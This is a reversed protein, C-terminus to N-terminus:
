QIVEYIKHNRIHRYNAMQHHYDVTSNYNWTIDTHPLRKEEFAEWAQKCQQRAIPVLSVYILNPTSPKDTVSSLTEGTVRFLLAEYDSLKWGFLDGEFRTLLSLQLEDHTIKFDISMGTILNSLVENDVEQWYEGKPLLTRIALKFDDSSYDIILDSSDM